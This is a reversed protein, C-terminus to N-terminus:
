EPRVSANPASPDISLIGFPATNGQPAGQLDLSWPGVHACDACTEERKTRLGRLQPCPAQLTPSKTESRHSCQLRTGAQMPGGDRGCHASLRECARVRASMARPIAPSGVPSQHTPIDGSPPRSASVNSVSPNMRTAIQTAIRTPPVGSEMLVVNVLCPHCLLFAHTLSHSINSQSELMECCTQVARRDTVLRTDTDGRRAYAAPGLNSAMPTAGNESRSKTKRM